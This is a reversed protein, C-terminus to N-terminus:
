AFAPPGRPRAATWVSLPTPARHFLFPHRAPASFDVHDAAAAPPLGFSGAHPACYACDDMAMKAPKQQGAAGDVRCIRWASPQDQIFAVAHSISPALANVLIALCAIWIYLLKRTSTRAMRPMM